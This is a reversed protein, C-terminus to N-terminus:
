FADISTLGLRLEQLFRNDMDQQQADQDHHRNQQQEQQQGSNHNNPQADEQPQQVDVRVTQQADHELLGQLSGASRELMAQTGLKEAKMLVHLSGDDMWKMEVHVRGLSRPNLELEVTSIKGRIPGALQKAIQAPVEAAARGEAPSADGVRIPMTEVRRFLPIDAGQNQVATDKQAGTDKQSQADTVKATFEPLDKMQKVPRSADERSPVPQKVQTDLKPQESAESAKKETPLEPQKMEAAPKEANASEGSLVDAALHGDQPQTQAVGPNQSGLIEQVSEADAVTADVQVEEHAEPVVVPTQKFMMAALMMQKNLELADSDLQARNPVSNSSDADTAGDPKGNSSMASQNVSQQTELLKRFDNDQSSANGSNQVKNASSPQMPILDSVGNATMGM